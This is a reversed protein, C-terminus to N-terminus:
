LIGATRLMPRVAPLLREGQADLFTPVEPPKVIALEAYEDSGRVTHAARIDLETAPTWLRFLIDFVGSEVDEILGCAEASVIMSATIGLEEELEELVQVKPDDQSLGGAPAPEWLGVDNAVSSGRRGFILGDACLLIGTVALPRMSLGFEKLDPDRRRAIAYRYESPYILLYDPRFEALGYIRGNTLQGGRKKKESTWIEEVRPMVSIPPTWPPGIERKFDPSLPYTNVNGM